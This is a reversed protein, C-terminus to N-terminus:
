KGNKPKSVKFQIGSEQRSPSVTADALRTIQYITEVPQRKSPSNLTADLPSLGTSPLPRSGWDGLACHFGGRDLLDFETGNIGQYILTHKDIQDIQIKYSRLISLFLAHQFDMYDSPRNATSPKFAPIPILIPKTSQPTTVRLFGSNWVNREASDESKLPDIQATDTANLKTVM